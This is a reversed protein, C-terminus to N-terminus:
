YDWGYGTPAADGSPEPAESATGPAPAAGLRVPAEVPAQMPPPAAPLGARPDDGWGRRALLELTRVRLAPSTAESELIRLAATVIAAPPIGARIASALSRGVPPRGHPNLSPGGRQMLPSGRPRRPPSDHTMTEM